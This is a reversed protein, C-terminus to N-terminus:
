LHKISFPENEGCTNFNKYPEPGPIHRIDFPEKTGRNPDAWQKHGPLHTIDFPAKDGNSYLREDQTIYQTIYLVADASYTLWDQPPYLGIGGYGMPYLGTKSATRREENILYDKFGTFKMNKNLLYVAYEYLSDDCINGSHVVFDHNSGVFSTSGL